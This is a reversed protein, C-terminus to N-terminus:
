TLTWVGFWISHQGAVIRSVWEPAFPTRNKLVGYCIM